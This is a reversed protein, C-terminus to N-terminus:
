PMPRALASRQTSQSHSGWEDESPPGIDEVKDVQSYIDSKGRRMGDLDMDDSHRFSLSKLRAMKSGCCAACDKSVAFFLAHRSPSINPAFRKRPAITFVRYFFM